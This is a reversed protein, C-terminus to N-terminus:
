RKSTLPYFQEADILEATFRLAARIQEETLGYECAVEEFSMGNALEGLIRAVPVRTGEIVPKGHQIAPDIVVQVPM